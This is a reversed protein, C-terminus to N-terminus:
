LHVYAVVIAVFNMSGCDSCQSVKLYIYSRIDGDQNYWLLGDRRGTEFKITMQEDHYGSVDFETPLYFIRVYGDGGPPYIAHHKEAETLSFGGIM